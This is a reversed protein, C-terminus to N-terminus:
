AWLRVMAKILMAQCILCLSEIGNGCCFIGVADDDYACSRCARGQSARFEERNM